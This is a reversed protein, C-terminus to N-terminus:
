TPEIERTWSAEDWGGLFESEVDWGFVPGTDVSVYYDSVRVGEPKLPLYGGTILALTLSDIIGGMIILAYSMNQNDQILINVQPFIAEWIAYAGETTGDWQNAAIKARILTRYVDDPLSTVDTPALNDPWVGFDWGLFPNDGDWSFYVGPIPVAVNRSVGAWLGIVDLQQGVATDIDFKVVLSALLEQLYAAVEVETSVTASFKPKLRFASTILDLYRTVDVSM